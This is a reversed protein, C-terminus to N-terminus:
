CEKYEDQHTRGTYFHPLLLNFNYNCLPLILTKSQIIINFMKLKIKMNFQGKKKKLARVGSFEKTSLLQVLM